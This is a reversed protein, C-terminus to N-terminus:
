FKGLGVLHGLVNARRVVTSAAKQPIVLHRKGRQLKQVNDRQNSQRPVQKERNVEVTWRYLQEQGM